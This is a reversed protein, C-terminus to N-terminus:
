EIIEASPKVMPCRQENRGNDPHRSM